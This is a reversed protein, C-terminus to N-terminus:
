WCGYADFGGITIIMADMVMIISVIKTAILHLYISVATTTLIAVAMSTKADMVM